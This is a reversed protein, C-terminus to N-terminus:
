NFCHCKKCFFYVTFLIITYECTKIIFIILYLCYIRLFVNKETCAYIWTFIWLLLLYVNIYIYEDYFYLIFVASSFCLFNNGFLSSYNCTNANKVYVCIFIRVAASQKHQENNYYFINVDVKSKGTLTQTYMTPMKSTCEITSFVNDDNEDIELDTVM